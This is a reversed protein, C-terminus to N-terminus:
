TTTGMSAAGSASGTTPKPCGGREIEALASYSHFTLRGTATTIEIQENLSRLGIGRDQWEGVLDIHHKM